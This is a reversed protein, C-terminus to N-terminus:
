RQAYLRAIGLIVEVAKEMSQVPVYEYKGHANHGGTFLNPTPLGMYTLTAGDTGGRVPVELPAVGAEVMAQRAADVIHFVPVILEKMNRYEDELALLFTNQGYKENLFVVADRLLKKKAEFKAKDHDRLIYGMRAEDVHGDLFDLHFFGEYGSTYAPRENPPLMGNLEIALLSANIMKNKSSGPHVGRGHITIVARAAHFNEYQLEGIEGGDLTYAHDAGFKKVDFLDAGRGIEEDPTFGVKLTGHPIEPDAQLIELAAMIEAIGAKDDAGLLTSGDTTILTQGIYKKLDPFDVPSLVINRKSDLVIDGGDYHEVLGPCVNEGSFDPSTDMHAVFGVVPTKWTLNSPLTAMVYGNEDLSVDELKMELL